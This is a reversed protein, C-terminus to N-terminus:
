NSKVIVPLYLRQEGAPLVIVRVTDAAGLEGDNASFRLVYTGTASFTATTTAANANAFTVTGPGSDMSWTATITAPAPLGDDNVIGNLTARSSLTVTLDTGASVTPPLNTTGDSVNIVVTDSTTLHGDTVSLRLTYSGALSFTATTDVANQNGFTVTGPGNVKSWTATLTAPAPFGDDTVTGNLSAPSGSSITQAAGAEVAPARNVTIQILDDTSVDGDNASLALVYVGPLSFTANTSAANANAFTVTGPGSVKSWTIVLPQGDPKGDDTVTGALPV